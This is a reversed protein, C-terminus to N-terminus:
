QPEGSLNITQSGLAIIKGILLYLLIIKPPL